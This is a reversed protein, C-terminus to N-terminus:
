AASKRNGAALKGRDANVAAAAEGAALAVLLADVVPQRLEPLHSARESWRIVIVSGVSDTREIWRLRGLPEDCAGILGGDMGEPLTLALKTAARAEEIDLSTAVVQCLRTRALREWVGWGAPQWIRAPVRTMKRAVKM